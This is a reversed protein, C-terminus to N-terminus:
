KRRDPSNDPFSIFNVIERLRSRVREGYREQIIEADINTTFHTKSRLRDNMAYRALILEQMVNSENGYNKKDRDMGFDDFCIGLETQGFSKFTDTSPILNKYPLIGDHGLRAFNETVTNVNLMVFSNSQNYRFFNMLATKYCGVPGYLCIGKRLDFPGNPNGAFYQCLNWIIQKNFDDVIIGSEHVKTYLESPKLVPYETEKKLQNKYNLLKENFFKKKRAELLAIEKEEDSLDVEKFEDFSQIGTLESVQNNIQQPQSM